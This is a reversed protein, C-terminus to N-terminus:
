GRQELLAKLRDQKENLMDALREEQAAGSAAVAQEMLESIQRRLLAIRDDLAESNGDTAMPEERVSRIQVILRPPAWKGPVEAAGVSGPLGQELSADSTWSDNWVTIIAHVRRTFVVKM